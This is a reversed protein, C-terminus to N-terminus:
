PARRRPRPRACRPMAAGSPRPRGRRNLTVLSRERCHSGVHLQRRTGLGVRPASRALEDTAQHTAVSSRHRCCEEVRRALKEPRVADVARDAVAGAQAAGHGDAIRHAGLLVLRTQRLRERLETPRLAEMRGVRHRTRAEGMPRRLLAIGRKAEALLEPEIRTAIRRRPRCAPLSSRLFSKRAPRSPISNLSYAGSRPRSGSSSRRM